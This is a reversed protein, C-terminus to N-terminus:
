FDIKFTLKFNASGQADKTERRKLHSTTSTPNGVQKVEFRSACNKKKKGGFFWEFKRYPTSFLYHSDQLVGVKLPLGLNLYSNGQM